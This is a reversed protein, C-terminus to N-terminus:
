VQVMFHIRSRQTFQLQSNLVDTSNLVSISVTMTNEKITATGEYEIYNYLTFGNPLTQNSINTMTIVASMQNVAQLSPAYESTLGIDRGLVARFVSGNYKNYLDWNGEYGNRECIKELDFNLASALLGNKNMYTINMNDIRFQWDADKYSMDSQNKKGFFYLSKPISQMQFSSLTVVVQGGPAISGQYSQNNPILTVYEYVCAKPIPTLIPPTIFKCMAQLSSLNVNVNTWTIGAAIASVDDHSVVMQLNAMTFTFLISNLNFLAKKNGYFLPIFIPEYADIRVQAATPTNSLITVGSFGGRSSVKSGSEGYLAFPSNNLGYLNEYNTCYDLQNPCLMLDDNKLFDKGYRLLQAIWLQPQSTITQGNMVASATNCTQAFPFARFCDFKGTQWCNSLTTNTATINVIFSYKLMIYDIATQPSPVSVNITNSSNNVNQALFPTYTTDTSSGFIGFTRKDMDRVDVCSDIERVTKLPIISNSM